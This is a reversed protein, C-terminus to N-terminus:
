QAANQCQSDLETEQSLDDSYHASNEKGGRKRGPKRICCSAVLSESLEGTKSETFQFPESVSCNSRYWSKSPSFFDFVDAALVTSKDGTRCSCVSLKLSM